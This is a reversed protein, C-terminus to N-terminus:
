RKLNGKKLRIIGNESLSKVEEWLGNIDVYICNPNNVANKIKQFDKFEEHPTMLIVADADRLVSSDSYEPLHPDYCGVQYDKYFLSKRLKYSLSGSSDDSNPRSSMGLIAVKNLNYNELKKVIQTSMSENIKFSTTILDAFPIREVLFWGEKHMGPGPSNLSPKPLDKFNCAEFIRNADVGFSDAILYFENSCASQFYSIMNNMLKGILAEEPEVWKTEGTTLQTFFEKARTFSEEDFAGIPQCSTFTNEISEKKNQVEPTFALFISKGVKFGTKDELLLKLRNTIGPSITGRFLILQGEKVFEAIDFIAGALPELSPNLNSDVPTGISIIIVDSDNVLNYESSANLKKNKIAEELYQDLSPECYPVTSQNIENIREEDLDICNVQFGKHTCSLGLRLGLRGCGGIISVKNM